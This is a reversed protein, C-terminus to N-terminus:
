AAGEYRLLLALGTSVVAASAAVIWVIGVIWWIRRAQWPWVGHRRGISYQLQGVCALYLWLGLLTYNRALASEYQIYKMGLPFLLLVGYSAIALLIAWPWRMARSAALVIFIGPPFFIAGVVWGWAPIQRLPRASEGGTDGASAQASAVHLDEVGLVEIAYRVCARIDEAEIDPYHNRIIEEFSHGEALLELVNVVPIRTGAVCPKGFHIHPSVAIREAM